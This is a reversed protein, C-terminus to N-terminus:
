YISAGCQTYTDMSVCVCAGYRHICKHHMLSHDGTLVYELWRNKVSVNFACSSTCCNTIENSSRPDIFLQTHTHLLYIASLSHISSVCLGPVHIYTYYMYVSFDGIEFHFIPSACFPLQCSRSTCM